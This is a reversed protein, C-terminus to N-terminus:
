AFLRCYSASYDFEALRKGIERAPVGAVISQPAVDRSVVAGAAVVAGRGITVGGLIMARTGIFAYDEIVVPRERGAFNASKPDHDATLICVENSISVNDGITLGGRNDLRCKPNITSCKGMKFSSKTDFWADMFISSQTGIEFKMWRRYFWLRFHHSPVRAVWRNALYLLGDLHLARLLSLM